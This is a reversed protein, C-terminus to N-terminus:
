PKLKKVYGTISIRHKSLIIILWIGRANKINMKIILLSYNNHLFPSEQLHCPPFIKAKHLHQDHEACPRYIWSSKCKMYM